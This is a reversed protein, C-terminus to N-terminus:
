TAASSAKKESSGPSVRFTINRTLSESPLRTSGSDATAHAHFAGNASRYDSSQAFTMINIRLIPYNGKAITAYLLVYQMKRTITHFFLAPFGTRSASEKM